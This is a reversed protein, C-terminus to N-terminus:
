DDDRAATPVHTAIEQAIAAPDAGAGAFAGHWLAHRAEVDVLTVNLMAPASAGAEVTGCLVYQTDKIRGQKLL